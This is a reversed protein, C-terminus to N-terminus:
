AGADPVGDHTSRQQLFVFDGHGVDECARAVLGGDESLPVEAVVVGEPGLVFAELLDQDMATAADALCGVVEAVIVEVICIKVISFPFFVLSVAGVDPKVSRQFEDLFVFVLGEETVDGCVGGMKTKRSKKATM